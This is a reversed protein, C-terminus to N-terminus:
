KQIRRNRDEENRPPSIGRIIGYNWTQEKAMKCKVTLVETETNISTVKLLDTAELESGFFLALISRAYNPKVKIFSKYKSIVPYIIDDLDDPCKLIDKDKEQFEMIVVHEQDTHETAAADTNEDQNNGNPENDDNGDGGM